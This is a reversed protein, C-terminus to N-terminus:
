SDKFFLLSLRIKQCCTQNEVSNYCHGLSIGCFPWTKRSIVKKFITQAMMKCFCCTPSFKLGQTIFRFLGWGIPDGSKKLKTEEESSPQKSNEKPQHHLLMHIHLHYYGRQETQLNLPWKMILNFWFFPYFNFVGKLNIDTSRALYQDFILRFMCLHLYFPVYKLLHLVIWLHGEQIVHVNKVFNKSLLFAVFILRLYIWPILHNKLIM